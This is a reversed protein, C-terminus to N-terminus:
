ESRSVKGRWMGRRTKEIREKNRITAKAQTLLSVNSKQILLSVNSQALLARSSRAEM